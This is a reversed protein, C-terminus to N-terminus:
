ESVIIRFTLLFLFPASIRASENARTWLMALLFAINLPAGIYGVMTTIYKFIQGGEANHIVPIWALSFCVALM